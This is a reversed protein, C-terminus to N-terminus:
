EDDYLMDQERDRKHKTFNVAISIAVYLITIFIIAFAVWNMTSINSYDVEFLYLVSIIVLGLLTLFNKM